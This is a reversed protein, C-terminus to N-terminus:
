FIQEGFIGVSNAPEIFILGSLTATALRATTPSIDNEHCVQAMLESSADEVKLAASAADLLVVSLVDIPLVNASRIWDAVAPQGLAHLAAHRVDARVNAKRAAGTLTDRVTWLVDTPSGNTSEGSTPTPSDSLPFSPNQVLPPMAVQVGNAVISPPLQLPPPLSLAQHNNHHHHLTPNNLIHHHHHHHNLHHNTAITSNTDGHGSGAVSTSAANAASGCPKCIAERSWDVLLGMTSAVQEQQGLSQNQDHLQRVGDLLKQLLQPTAERALRLLEERHASAASDKDDDAVPTTAPARAISLLREFCHQMIGLALTSNSRKAINLCCTRNQCISAHLFANAVARRAEIRLHPKLSTNMSKGMWDFNAELYGVIRQYKQVQAPSGEVRSATENKVITEIRGQVGGLDMRRSVSKTMRTGGAGALLRQRREEANEGGRAAATASEKEADRTWHDAVDTNDDERACNGQRDISVTRQRDTTGCDDCVDFGDNGPVLKSEDFTGCGRCTWKVSLTDMEPSSTEMATTMQSVGPLALEAPASASKTLPLPMLAAAGSVPAMPIGDFLDAIGFGFRADAGRPRLTQSTCRDEGGSRHMVKALLKNRSDRGRQLGGASASVVRPKRIGMQAPASGVSVLSASSLRGTAGGTMLPSSPAPSIPAFTHRTMLSSLSSTSRPSLSSM